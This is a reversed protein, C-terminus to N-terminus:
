MAKWTAESFLGEGGTGAVWSDGSVRQQHFYKLLGLLAVLGCVCVCGELFVVWDKSQQRCPAMGSDEVEPSFYM